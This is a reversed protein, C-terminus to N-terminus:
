RIKSYRRAIPGDIIDGIVSLIICLVAAWIFIDNMGGGIPDSLGDVALVLMLVAVAGLLGNALTIYDAIGMMRYTTKM